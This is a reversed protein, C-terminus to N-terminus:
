APTIAADLYQVQEQWTEFFETPVNHNRARALLASNIDDSPPPSAAAALKMLAVWPKYNNVPGDIHSRLEMYDDDSLLKMLSSGRPLYFMENWEERDRTSTADPMEDAEAVFVNARDLEAWAKQSVDSAAAGQHTALLVISGQPGTVRWVFPKQIPPPYYTACRPEPATACACALVAIVVVAKV